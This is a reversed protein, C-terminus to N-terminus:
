IYYYKCKVGVAKFQVGVEEKAENISTSLAVNNNSLKTTDEPM